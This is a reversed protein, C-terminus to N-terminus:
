KTTGIWCHCSRHKEAWALSNDVIQEDTGINYIAPDYPVKFKIEQEALNLIKLKAPDFFDLDQIKINKEKIYNFLKEKYDSSSYGHFILVYDNLRSMSECLELCSYYEDFGGIHAVTAELQRKSALWEATDPSEGSHSPIDVAGAIAIRGTTLLFGLLATASRRGLAVFCLTALGCISFAGVLLTRIPANELGSHHIALAGWLTLGIVTLGALARGAIVHLRRRKRPM